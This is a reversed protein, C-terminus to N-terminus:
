KRLRYKVVRGYRHETDSELKIIYLGSPYNDPITITHVLSQSFYMEKKLIIGTNSIISLSFTSQIPDSLRVNIKGDTPNPFLYLQDTQKIGALSDHALMFNPLGYGLQNNPNKWLSASLKIRASIEDVSLNPLAQWLCASLGSIIPASFSTGNASGVNGFANVLVTRSGQAAIDPKIRGDSTPGVSSFSVYEGESNVAGVTLSKVADSPTTIHKWFSTGENGASVVVLIGKGSAFNAAKASPTTVGDMSNYTHNQWEADFLNYGLSSNIIDAGLSDAFEAAAAWNYEEVIQESNADESRILIYNAKPATGVLEGPANGAMVSLVMMGHSHENYINSKPNVFDKTAIIRGELWLDSFAGIANVRYFGADLIAITVGQGRYGKNHLYHGNLMKIQNGSSGYNYYDNIDQKESYIPFTEDNPMVQSKRGHEFIMKVGTVFDLENIM